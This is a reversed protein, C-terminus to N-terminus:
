LKLMLAKNFCTKVKVGNIWMCEFLLFKIQNQISNTISDTKLM